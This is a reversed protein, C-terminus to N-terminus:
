RSNSIQSSLKILIIELYNIIITIGVISVCQNHKMANMVNILPLKMQDNSIMQLYSTARECVTVAATLQGEGM